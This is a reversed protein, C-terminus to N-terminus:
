PQLDERLLSFLVADQWEGHRMYARRKVGERVFGGSTSSKNGDAELHSV